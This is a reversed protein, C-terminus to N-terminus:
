ASPMVELVRMQEALFWTGGQHEPRQQPRYDKFEVKAWVRDGGQRLHDAEPRPLIHWGPRHAYGKTPHDEAPLWTGVPVRLRANIFLPGLTGDKRQRFLKYGVRTPCTTRIAKSIEKLDRRLCAEDYSPGEVSRGIEVMRDGIIPILKAFAFGRKPAYGVTGPTGVAVDAACWQRWCSRPDNEWMGDSIQGTLEEQWLAVQARTRFQIRM